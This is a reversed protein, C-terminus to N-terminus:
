YFESAFLGPLVNSLSWKLGSGYVLLFMMSVSRLVTRPYLVVNRSAAASPSLFLLLSFEQFAANYLPVAPLGLAWAAFASIIRQADEGWGGATSTREEEQGDARGARIRDAATEPWPPSDYAGSIAFGPVGARGAADEM